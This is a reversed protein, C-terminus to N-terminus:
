TGISKLNRGIMLLSGHVEFVLWGVLGGVLWGVLWGNKLKTVIKRWKEVKEVNKLKKLM